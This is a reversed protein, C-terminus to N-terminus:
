QTLAIAPSHPALRQPKDCGEAGGPGGAQRRRDVM